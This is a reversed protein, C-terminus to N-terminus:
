LFIHWPFSAYGVSQEFARLTGQGECKRIVRSICLRCVNGSIVRGEGEGEGEEEEGGAM